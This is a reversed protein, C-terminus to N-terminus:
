HSQRYTLRKGAAGKVALNAREGDEVGLASRNSYRFDFEALYRHLHKEACRQYIGKMGRKFISYYGEVTNTTIVTTEVVPKGNGDKKDTVENWYRVYQDKSHNVTEHDLKEIDAIVKYAPVEDTMLKAERSLNARLIPMIDGTRTGDIHFSRASGGREVLTLIVNKNSWDRRGKKPQGELFGYFTEDVEVPKGSSGMPPLLGGARMAERIRHSLFWASKYTIGLTRHLQHASVGKKSSAMLYFAQLWVNLKIHSSEMVSKTTVSFDKRCGKSGCRYVGPKKTAFSANVTGCHPCVRESGWRLAELYARAAEVSQFHPANFSAM